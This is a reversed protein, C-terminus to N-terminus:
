GSTLRRRGAAASSTVPEDSVGLAEGQRLRQLDNERMIQRVFQVYGQGRESYRLLSGILRIATPIRAASACRRGRTASAPMPPIPTSTPSMPTPRRALMPSPSRCAPVRSGRCRSATAASRRSRATCPMAPARLSRRAGARDSAARPSRWRPRCSTSAGSWSTSAQRVDDRLPRGSRRALHTRDATLMQPTASLKDRLYLLQERDALVRQNVELIVPLIATIFLMKRENGDKNGLDAPVRDVKYRRCRRARASIPAAHLLRRPLLRRARGGYAPQHRAGPGPPPRCQRARRLPWPGGSSERTSRYAVDDPESFEHRVFTLAVPEADMFSSPPQDPTVRGPCKGIPAFSLYPAADVSPLPESSFRRGDGADAAWAAPFAYNRGRKIAPRLTLQM